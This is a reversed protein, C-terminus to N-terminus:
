HVLGHRLAYAAAEARNAVGAKAFIHSVHRDVTNASISLQEGIERNSKGSAILRLVQIERESLNNPRALTVALPRPASEKGTVRRRDALGREIWSKGAGHGDYLDIAADLKKRAALRDGATLLSVGWWRLTEAEEWLLGLREFTAHAREFQSQAESHRDAAAAVVAKALAVLGALGRWDEGNAVIDQCRVVHSLAAAPNRAEVNLLALGARARVEIPLIPGEVAITLAEQLLQAAGARDGRVRRVWALWCDFEAQGARNGARADRQRARSWLTDARQWEGSWFAVMPQWLNLATVGRPLEDTEAALRRAEALDGSRASLCVLDRVLSQRRTPARAQAQRPLAAEREIWRRANQPDDLLFSANARWWAAVHGPLTQNVRDAVAVAREMLKLGDLLHGAALLHAGHTVSALMWARGDGLGQAVLDAESELRRALTMARRSADLGAQTRAMRLSLFGLAHYYSWQAAREPGSELVPQASRLSALAGPIDMSPAYAGLIRGIRCRREAAQEVLGLQECLEAAQRWYALARPYHNAGLTYVAEGIRELLLLRRGADGGHEELLKLATEWHKAAEADAFVAKAAEGAQLAFGIAKEADAMPGALRYHRALAPAHPALNNVHVTELSQGARLHLRQRRPQSLADYITERILSHRFEYSDREERLMGAALAEELAELLGPQGGELSAQLEQFNFGDGLVTAMRLLENAAGSLHELRQEIVERVGEPVGTVAAAAEVTTLDHGEARLHQVVQSVFFPNGETECEVAEAVATAPRVGTIGQILSAVEEATLPLPILRQTSGERWLNALAAALPHGRHVEESRYAGVFLLPASALRRALHQLLLVSARDAWHLDDLVLLMGPAKARRMIGLLVDAVSEHLRFVQNVSASSRATSLSPLRRLLEPALLAVEQEADGLSERLDDLSATRAYDRLAERFPLYPPAGETDYARGSLVQWGAARAQEGFEALLRTKGIGPEGAVLLRQSQGAATRDLADQLQRLEKERGVFAPAQRLGQM